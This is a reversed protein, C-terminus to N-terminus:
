RKLELSLCLRRSGTKPYQAPSSPSLAHTPHLPINQSTLDRVVCLLLIFFLMNEEEPILFHHMFIIDYDIKQARRSQVTGGRSFCECADINAIETMSEAWMDEIKKDIDQPIGNNAM